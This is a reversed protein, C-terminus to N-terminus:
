WLMVVLVYAFVIIYLGLGYILNEFFPNATDRLNHPDYQLWIARGIGLLFFLIHLFKPISPKLGDYYIFRAQSIILFLYIFFYIL